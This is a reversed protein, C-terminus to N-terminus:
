DHVAEWARLVRPISALAADVTPHTYSLLRYWQEGDAEGCVEVEYGEWDKEPWCSVTLQVQMGSNGGNCRCETPTPFRKYYADSHAYGLPNRCRRWGEATLRADVDPKVPPSLDSM